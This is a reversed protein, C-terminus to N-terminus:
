IENSVIPEKIVNWINYLQAKEALDPDEFCLKNVVEEFEKKSAPM